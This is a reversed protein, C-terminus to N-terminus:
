EETLEPLDTLRISDYHVQESKGKEAYEKDGKCGPEMTDEPLLPSTRYGRNEDTNGAECEDRFTIEPAVFPQMGTVTGPVRWRSRPITGRTAIIGAIM